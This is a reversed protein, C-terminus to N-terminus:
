FGLFFLRSCIFVFYILFFYIVDFLLLFLPLPFCKSLPSVFVSFLFASGILGICRDFSYSFQPFIVVPLLFIGVASFLFMAFVLEKPIFMEYRGGSWFWRVRHVFRRFLRKISKM